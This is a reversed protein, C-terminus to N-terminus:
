WNSQFWKWLIELDHPNNIGYTFSVDIGWIRAELDILRKWLGKTYKQPAMDLVLQSRNFRRAIAQLHRTAEQKPQYYFLGEALLLLGSNGNSTVQEIWSTDFVSCGILEYALYDKLIERKLEIMEPLDLEIYQCKENEIRWYRADFGCGPNIVTRGPNNSIFLSTISDFRQATRARKQMGHMIAQM